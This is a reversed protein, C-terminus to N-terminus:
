KYVYGSKGKGKVEWFIGRFYSWTRTIIRTVIKGDPASVM